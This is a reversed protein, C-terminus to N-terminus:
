AMIHYLVELLEPILKIMPEHFFISCQGHVLNACQEQAAKVVAPHNHGTNV